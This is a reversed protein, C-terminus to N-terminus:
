RFSGINVRSIKPTIQSVNHTQLMGVAGSLSDIIDDHKWNPFKLLELELEFCDSSNHFVSM